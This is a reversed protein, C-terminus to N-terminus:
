WGEPIRKIGELYETSTPLRVLSNDEYTSEFVAPPAVPRGTKTDITIFNLIGAARTRRDQEGVIISRIEMGRQQLEAIWSAIELRDGVVSPAFLTFSLKHIVYAIGDTRTTDMLDVGILMSLAELRHNLVMDVYQATNLHGYPDAQSFKVREKTTLVRNLFDEMKLQAM